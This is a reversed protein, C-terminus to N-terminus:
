QNRAKKTEHKGFLLLAAVILILGIGQKISPMEKWIFISALIPFAVSLSIITWSASLQGYKMHQFFALTAFFFLLGAAFGLGIALPSFALHRKTLVIIIVTILSGTYLWVNVVGPTCKKVAALKYCSAFISGFVISLILYIM